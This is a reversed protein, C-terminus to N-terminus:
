NLALQGGGGLASLFKPTTLVNWCLKIPASIWIFRDGIDFNIPGRDWTEIRCYDDHEPEDPGHEPCGSIPDTESKARRWQLKRRKSENRYDAIRSRRSAPEIAGSCERSSNVRRQSRVCLSVKRCTFVCPFM